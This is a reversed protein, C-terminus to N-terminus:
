RGANSGSPALGLLRRLEGSPEQRGKELRYLTGRSVGVAKAVAEVSLGLQLRRARLKEAWTKRRVVVGASPKRRWRTLDFFGLPPSAAESHGELARMALDIRAALWRHPSRRGGEWRCIQSEDQGLRAALEAQTLGLRRRIARLRDPLDQGAPEPDYGLFRVISGYHKPLPKARGNEWLTVTELGVGLEEAVTRQWLGRDLRCKRLHDGLTKPEIPYGRPLYRPRPGKLHLSSFPL